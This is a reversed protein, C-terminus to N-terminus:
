LVGIVVYGKRHRRVVKRRAGCLRVCNWDSYVNGVFLRQRPCVSPPIASVTACVSVATRSRAFRLPPAPLSSKRAIPIWSKSLLFGYGSWSIIGSEFFSGGGKSKSRVVRKM